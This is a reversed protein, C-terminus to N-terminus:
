TRRRAQNCEVLDRMSRTVSSIRLQLNSTTRRDPLNRFSATVREHPTPFPHDADTRVFEVTVLGGGLEVIVLRSVPPVVLYRAGM